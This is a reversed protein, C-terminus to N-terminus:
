HAVDVSGFAYLWPMRDLQGLTRTTTLLAHPHNQGTRARTCTRPVRTLERPRDRMCPRSHMISHCQVNPLLDHLCVLTEHSVQYKASPTLMRRMDTWCSLGTAALISQLALPPARCPTWMSHAHSLTIARTLIYCDDCLSSATSAIHCHCVGQSRTRPRPM